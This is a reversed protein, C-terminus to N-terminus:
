RFIGPPPAQPLPARACFSSLARCDKVYARWRLLGQMFSFRHCLSSRSVEAKACMGANASVVCGSDRLSRVVASHQESEFARQSINRSDHPANLRGTEVRRLGCSALGEADASGAGADSCRSWPWPLALCKPPVRGTWAKRWRALAALLRHRRAVQFVRRQASFCPLASGSLWSNPEQHM